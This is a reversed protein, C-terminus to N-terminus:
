LKWEGKLIGWIEMDLFKNEVLVSQRIIGEKKFNLRKPIACSKPNIVACRLGIRNLNLENFGQNVIKKTAETVIGKGQENEDIWYGIEANKDQGIGHLGVIGIIKDNCIILRTFMKGANEKELTESIFKKTDEISYEQTIWTLFKKLHNRNKITLTFLEDIDKPNLPRLDFNVKESQNM